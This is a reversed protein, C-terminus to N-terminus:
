KANRFIMLTGNVNISKIKGRYYFTYYYTGDPCNTGDFAKKGITIAGNQMFTDYNEADYVKRGWRNFISLRNTRFQVPDDPNISTNLNEIAFVDNLGDGNPTIVNPFQLDAEISVRHSIEDSCGLGNRVFFTVVYDGWEEYQHTPSITASDTLGDGFDWYWISTALISTDIFNLFYIGSDSISQTEPIAMFEAHPPSVTTIYNYKIMTDNCGINTTAILQIHYSGQQTFEFEPDVENSGFHFRGETDYVRWTYSITVDEYPHVDNDFDTENQMKVTFPTCGETPVASFDAV